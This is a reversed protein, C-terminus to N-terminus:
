ANQSSRSPIDRSTRILSLEGSGLGSYVTFLGGPQFHALARDLRAQLVLLGDRFSEHSPTLWRLASRTLGSAYALAEGTVPLTEHLLGMLVPIVIEPFAIESKRTRMFLEAYLVSADPIYPLAEVLSPLWGELLVLRNSRLLVIAAVLAAIPANVQLSAGENGAAKILPRSSEDGETLSRLFARLAEEPGFTQYLRWIEAAVAIAPPNRPSCSTELRDIRNEYIDFDLVYKWPDLGGTPLVCVWPTESADALHLLFGIPESPEISFEVRYRADGATETVQHLLIASAARAEGTGLSSLGVSDRDFLLAIVQAGRSSIGSELLRAAFEGNIELRLEFTRDERALSQEIARLRDAPSIRVAEQTLRGFGAKVPLRTARVADPKLHAITLDEVIGGLRVPQLVASNAKLLLDAVREKVYIHLAYLNIAQLRAPRDSGVPTLQIDPKGALGDLLATGFLSLGKGPEPQQFAQQGPATAFLIPCLVAFNVEASDDENLIRAGPLVKSRLKQSGNRCADLFFFQRTVNLSALGARLNATSIADNWARTPPALYDSPLLVHQDQQIQLGHGSFFFFSHSKAASAPPLERMSQWWFGITKRVVDFTPELANEALRPEHQLEAATPCLLLWCKALPVGELYFDETLWRFLRFATLASVALQGLGYTEPAPTVGGILHDYRSVGILVAFVGPQGEQWEPNVFLGPSAAVTKV